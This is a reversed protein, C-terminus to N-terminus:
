IYIAPHVLYCYNALNCNLFYYGEMIQNKHFSNLTLFIVCQMENYM